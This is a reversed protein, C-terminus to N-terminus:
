LSQRQYERRKMVLYTERDMEHLQRAYSETADFWHQLRAELQQAAPKDLTAFYAEIALYYRMTNREATGRLGGVLEAKQGQQVTSFGVKSRGVTALYAQMAFQSAAGYSSAYRLHLFTKGGPLPAAELEIVYNSTGLPGKAADLRVGFHNSSNSALKYALDLAFTDVIHQEDKKGIHLRIMTPSGGRTVRCMKTNIHLMMIECWIGPNQLARSVTAFPAELVAHVDGSVTSASQLSDLVLPRGYPSSALRSQLANHKEALAASQGEDDTPSAAQAMSAAVFLLAAAWVAPSFVRLANCSLTRRSIM